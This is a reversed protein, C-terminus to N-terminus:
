SKKLQNIFVDADDIAQRAIFDHPSTIGSAVKQVFLDRAVEYRRQEWDIAAKGKLIEETIM